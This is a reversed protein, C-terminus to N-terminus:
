LIGLFNVGFGIVKKIEGFGLAWKFVELQLILIKSYILIIM